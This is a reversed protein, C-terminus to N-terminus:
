IGSTLVNYVPVNYCSCFETVSHCGSLLLVGAVQLAALHLVMGIYSLFPFVMIKTMAIPRARPYVCIVVEHMM